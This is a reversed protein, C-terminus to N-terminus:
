RKGQMTKDVEKPSRGILSLFTHWIIGLDYWVSSKSAYDLNMKIKVPLINEIYYKEANESYKLWESEQQFKISAPDTIGPVMELVLLQSNNYLAVYVPVEPRPGVLSMDGKLVNFLQPLEDIKFNRLWKGTRTIRPDQYFTLQKGLKEANLIMTRFKWIRFIKGRYGVREQRFFIPGGDERKILLAVLIFLPLFIILGMISAFIDFIRKSPRM